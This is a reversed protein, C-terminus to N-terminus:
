FAFGECSMRILKHHLTISNCDTHTTRGRQLEAIEQRLELVRQQTFADM